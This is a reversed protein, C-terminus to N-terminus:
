LEVDVWIHLHRYANSQSPEAPPEGTYLLYQLRLDDGAFTPTVTHGRQVTEGATVPSQFSDVRASRTVTGGDSVAQLQVVIAYTHDRQERNTVTYYLPTPEGVTMTSPHDSAVLDGNETETLLGFETYTEGREGTGAVVAVSVLSVAVAMVVMVTALSDSDTGVLSRVGAGARTGTARRDLDSHRLVGVSAAILTVIALVAVVTPARIELPTFELNVGVIVALAVSVAVSLVLRDLPFLGDLGDVDVPAHWPIRRPFLAFTVAYGPVFLLFPVGVVVSVLTSVPLVVAGFAAVSAVFCLGIGLPIDSLEQSELM